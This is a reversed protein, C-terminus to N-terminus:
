QVQSPPGDRCEEPHDGEPGTGQDPVGGSSNGLHEPEDQHQSRSADGEVSAVPPVWDRVSLSPLGTDLMGRRSSRGAMLWRRTSTIM